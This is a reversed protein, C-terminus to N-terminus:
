RFFVGQVVHFRYCDIYVELLLVWGYALIVGLPNFFVYWAGGVGEFCLRFPVNELGVCISWSRALIFLDIAEVRFPTLGIKSRSLELLFSLTLNHRDIKIVRM